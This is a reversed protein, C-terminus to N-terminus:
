ELSCKRLLLSREKILQSLQIRLSLRRTNIDELEQLVEQIRARLEEIVTCNEELQQNVLRLADSLDEVEQLFQVTEPSECTLPSYPAPGANEVPVNFQKALAARQQLLHKQIDEYRLKDICNNRLDYKHLVEEDHIARIRELLVDIDSTLQRFQDSNASSIRSRM